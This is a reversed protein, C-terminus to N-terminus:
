QSRLLVTKKSLFCSIVKNMFCYCDKDQVSCRIHYRKAYGNESNIAEENM